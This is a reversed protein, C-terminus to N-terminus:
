QTVGLVFRAGLVLALIGMLLWSAYSLLRVHPARLAQERAYSAREAENPVALETEVGGDIDSTRIASKLFPMRAALEHRIAHMNTGHSSRLRLTAGGTGSPSLAVLRANNDVSRCIRMIDQVDSFVTAM